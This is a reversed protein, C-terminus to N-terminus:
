LGKIHRHLEATNKMRMRDRDKRIEELEQWLVLLGPDDHRAGASWARILSRYIYIMRSVLDVPYERGQVKLTHLGLDMYKWLEEGSVVFAVNPNRRIRESISEIEEPKKGRQGLVKRRQEDTLMCLRFCSGSRDPWGEFEIIENGDEDRCRREIYSDGILEHFSCNGVGGVCRNGHILVETAVGLSDAASKFGSLQEVTKIETSAVVQTAGYGVYEAIQERTQINCGVSAHIVLEPFNDRAMQMVFPTKVIIGEAGWSAYKAIKGLLVMAKDRPVEANLAIRVKGGFRGAIRVAERVKSDELEWASKRRSFGKSGVYVADAGKEFVAEVMELSGGPALLENVFKEEV